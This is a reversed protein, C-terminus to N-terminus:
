EKSKERIEKKKPSHLLWSRHLAEGHRVISFSIASRPLSLANNTFVFESFSAHGQGRARANQCGVCHVCNRKGRMCARMGASVCAHADRRICACTDISIDVSIYHICARACERAITCMRAHARARLYTHGHAGGGGGGGGGGGETLGAGVRGVLRGVLRGVARRYAV